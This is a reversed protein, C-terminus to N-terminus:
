HKRSKTKNCECPEQTGPELLGNRELFKYIVNEFAYFSGDGYVHDRLKCALDKIQAENM